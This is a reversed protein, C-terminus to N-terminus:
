KKQEGKVRGVSARSGVLFAMSEDCQRIATKALDPDQTSSLCSSDGVSQMDGPFGPHLALDYGPEPFKPSWIEALGGVSERLVIDNSTIKWKQTWMDNKKDLLISGSSVEGDAGASGSVDLVYNECHLSEIVGGSKGIKWLKRGDALGSSSDILRVYNMGDSCTLSSVGLM